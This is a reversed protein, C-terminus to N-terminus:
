IILKQISHVLVQDPHSDKHNEITKLRVNLNGPLITGLIWKRPFEKSKLTKATRITFFPRSECCIVPAYDSIM